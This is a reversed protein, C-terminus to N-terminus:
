IKIYEFIFPLPSLFAFVMAVLAVILAISGDFYRVSIQLLVAILMLFGSMPFSGLFAGPASTFEELEVNGPGLHLELEKRIM